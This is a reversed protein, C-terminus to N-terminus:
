IELYTLYGSVQVAANLNLKLGEGAVTEIIGVPCYSDSMGVNAVLSMLPTLDTNVGSGSSNNTSSQWKVSVTGASILTLKVVRIKKASVLNVVAAGDANTVRDIKAFKPTLETTGNFIADTRDASSVKGILNTGAALVILTKLDELGQTMRRFKASFSGTAGAAVAADANAGFPDAPVTEIDVNGINNNGAALVILSKLDELGQTVRRLKASLSGAAGAAVIADTTAGSTALIAASNDETVLGKTGSIFNDITEVATKIASLDTELDTLTKSSVGRLADRLASLAIDLNDTKAKVLALTTQTAFDEAAISTLQTIADDQKAETAAGTPLALEQDSALTVSLSGAKITQGLSPPLEGFIGILYSLASTLQAATAPRESNEFYAILVDSDDMSTTDFELTLIDGGPDQTIVGGKLSDAFSYIIVGDTVNTILLIFDLTLSNTWNGFTITKASADFTFNDEKFKM